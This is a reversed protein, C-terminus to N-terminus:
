AIMWCLNCEIYMLPLFIRRQYFYHFFKILKKNKIGEKYLIVRETKLPKIENKQLIYSTWNGVLDLSFHKKFHYNFFWIQNFIRDEWFTWKSALAKTKIVGIQKKLVISRQFRFNTQLYKKLETLLLVGPFM